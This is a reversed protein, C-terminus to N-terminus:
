DVVRYLRWRDPVGKLEHEGADEFTLGSGATLDKVTHSTLLESPGALAGVRAGIVVALGGVKGAITEVEGTHLGARVEISLPRVAELIAQACKVGRAPGDFTAFFGDGATDVETGRYRSLMARVTAHHRELVRKWGRDGLEAARETSGVIDTFLVTALVRDFEAEEDRVSALFREVEDLLADQDGAWPLFGKGPVEALQAGPIREAIFRAEGLTFLEDERRALVLAPVHIVSLVHRMDLDRAMRELSLAAGPSAALRQLTAYWRVSRADSLSPVWAAERRRVRAETGWHKDIDEFWEEWVDDTWGFPYDPAWSGKVEAAALILAGTRHPHTAAFLTCMAGGDFEGFLAARESGVEDLVATVDDMRVELTPLEQDPVRDSMGTGRRDILILRSFTALRRYYRALAPYQWAFELHSVYGPVYVLDTPGDGLVQYAVHVGDATKAYRTEPLDVSSDNGPLPVRRLQLV